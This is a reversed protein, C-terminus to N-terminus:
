VFQKWENKKLFTLILSVIVFFLYLCIVILFTIIQMVPLWATIAGMNFYGMVIAVISVIMLVIGGLKRM